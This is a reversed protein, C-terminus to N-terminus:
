FHANNNDEDAAGENIEENEITLKIKKNPTKLTLYLTVFITSSITKQKEFNRYL